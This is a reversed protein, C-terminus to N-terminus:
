LNNFNNDVNYYEICVYSHNISSFPSSICAMLKALCLSSISIISSFSSSDSLSLLSIAFILFLDNSGPFFHNRERLGPLIYQYYNAGFATWTSVSFFVLHPQATVIKKKTTKCKPRRESQDDEMKTTKWKAQRGNPDDEM